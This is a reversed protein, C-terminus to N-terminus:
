PSLLKVIKTFGHRAALDKALMGDERPLKPDAGYELLVAVVDRDGNEAAWTLLTYGSWHCDHKPVCSYYRGPAKENPDAGAKLLSRIISIDKYKEYWFIAEMIISYGNQYGQHDFQRIDAGKDILYQAIEKNNWELSNRLPSNGFKDVSNIDAGAEVLLKVTLLKNPRPGYFNKERFIKETIDDNAYAADGLPTYEFKDSRYNVNAGHEILLKLIAADRNVADMVINEHVIKAGRNFLATVVDVRNFWVASGLNESPDLGSEIMEIAKDVQHKELYAAFDESPASYVLNSVILTVLFSLSRM